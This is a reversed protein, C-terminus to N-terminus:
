KLQTSVGNASKASQIVTLLNSMNVKWKDLFTDLQVWQAEGFTRSEAHRVIIRKNLQDIRADLIDSTIAEVVFFEVESETIELIKSIDSYLITKQSSAMANLTLLRIKHVLDEEKLDLLKLLDGHSKQFDKFEQYGHNTFIDLLQYTTVYENINKLSKVVYSELLLDTRLIEPDKVITAIVTQAEKQIEAPVIEEEDYESFYKVWFDYV